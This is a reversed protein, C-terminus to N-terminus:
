GFARHNLAPTPELRGLNQGVLHKDSPMLQFTDDILEALEKIKDGPAPHNLLNKIFELLVDMQSKRQLSGVTCAPLKNEIRATQEPHLLLCHDLLLSLILGRSSGKEDLQKAERGWGEYLKWDEFFVEVLWRLTYAQIIDITRWSMQTAVLYRYENEGEYKLAIVFRKKGHASVKLRASSLTVKIEKGGRVRIIAPIGGNIKNFYDKLNRKKGKYEINQNERLQSIVQVKDFLQSAETMFYAEGYLADAVIATIKIDAHNKKFERLLQLAIQIKTPYLPNRQPTDPRDKKAVGSKKLCKDEKTWKTLAPDPMYFAFGVPFSVSETVLLLLVVTQGNVYGGSAKHKQKHVCHIRKTRKSRARDSEDIAIVGEKIDYQKLILIVSAQLMDNWYIKADRFMWSLASVKYTGLSAREFKAWCVSNMLLIGTLCFGLWIKQTGSLKANSKLEGLAADLDQIFNKIFTAPEGMLM